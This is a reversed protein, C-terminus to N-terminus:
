LKRYGALLMKLTPIEIMKLQTNRERNEYLEATQLLIGASIAAPVNAAYDAPSNAPEYGAVYTIQVADHRSAVSPITASSSDLYIESRGLDARYTTADLTTLVQPSDDTYYKISTISSLPSMPLRFRGAFGEVDARYTRQVLSSQLYVEVWQTAAKIMSNLITDNDSYDERVHVKTEPLSVPEVVPAVTQTIQNTSVIYTM